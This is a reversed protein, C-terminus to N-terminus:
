KGARQLFRGSPAEVRVTEGAALHEPVQIVLGSELTAPKTRGTASSGKLAPATEVIRLDVTPPLEIGIIEDDVMLGKLEMNDVLFPAEEELEAAPFSFQNYDGLDMFHFGGGDRYLFQIERREFNSEVIGDGGRFVVDIKQKTRLNRARVKWLTGAGRSSPSQVDVAVIACPAGDIEIILGRKLEGPNLM